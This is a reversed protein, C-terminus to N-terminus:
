FPLDASSNQRLYPQKDNQIQPWLRTLSISYNYIHIKHTHTKSSDKNQHTGPFGSPQKFFLVPVCFLAAYMLPRKEQQDPDERGDMSQSSFSFVGQTSTRISSGFYFMMNGPACPKLKGEETLQDTLLPVFNVPM